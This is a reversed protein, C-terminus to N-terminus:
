GVDILVLSVNDSGDRLLAQELLRAAARDLDAHALIEAPQLTRSLGDSCLLLRDGPCLDIALRDISAQADIGLARTVVNAQPHHGARDPDLLGADVLEQVFSHDVTLQVVAGDRALYARSDGAWAIHLAEPAALAAVVTSGTRCGCRANNWYITRNARQLIEVLDPPEAPPPQLATRLADVILQAAIDGGHYGGMGDAVAWCRVATGDYVRDENITRVKGVHSRAVARVPVAAGGGSPTAGAPAPHPVASM